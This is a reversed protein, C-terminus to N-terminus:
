RPKRNAVYFDDIIGGAKLREGFGRAAGRTSFHSIRVQYWKKGRGRAENWYADVNRAVLRATLQRAHDPNLYAAVQITFPDRSVNESAGLPANRVNKGAVLHNATDVFLLSVIFLVATLASIAAWRGSFVTNRIKRGMAAFLRSVSVVGKWPAALLLAFRGGVGEGPSRPSRPAGRGSPPQRFATGGRSARERAAFEEMLRKRVACDIGGILKKGKAVLPGQEGTEGLGHVSAAIGAVLAKDAGGTGYAALYVRLAPYDTRGRSLFLRSLGRAVAAGGRGGRTMVRDYTQLAVFDSRGWSLYIGALTSQLAPNDPQAKGIKLATREAKGGQRVRMGGLWAEAVERDGPHANLYSEVFTNGEAGAQEAGLHFRAVAGGVVPGMKIRGRPSILFSDFISLARNFAIRARRPDGERVRAEAARVSRGILAGALRNGLRGAGVFVVAGLALAPYIVGPLGTFPEFFPLVLPCILFGALLSFWVRCAMHRLFHVM